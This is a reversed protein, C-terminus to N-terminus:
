VPISGTVWSSEIGQSDKGVKVGACYDRIKILKVKGIGKIALLQGDS